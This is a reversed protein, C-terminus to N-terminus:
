GFVGESGFRWPENMSNVIEGLGDHSRAATYGLAGVPCSGGLDFGTSCGSCVGGGCGVGM